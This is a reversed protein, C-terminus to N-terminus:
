RQTSRSPSARGPVPFDQPGRPGSISTTCIQSPVTPMTAPSATPSPTAATPSSGSVGIIETRGNTKRVVKWTDPAEVTVSLTTGFLAPQDSGDATVTEVNDGSFILDYKNPGVAKVKMQDTLRSRSPNLKWKGAFPDSAAWLTGTLLSIALLLQVIRKAMSNEPILTGKNLAQVFTAL